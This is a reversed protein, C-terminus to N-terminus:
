VEVQAEGLSNNVVYILGVKVAGLDGIANFATVAHGDWTVNELELERDNDGLACIGNALSFRVGGFLIGVLVGNGTFDIRNQEVNVTYSLTTGYLTIPAALEGDEFGTITSTASVTAGEYDPCNLETNNSDFWGNLDVRNPTPADAVIAESRVVQKVKVTGSM